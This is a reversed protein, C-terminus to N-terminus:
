VEFDARSAHSYVWSFSGMLYLYFIADANACGINRVDLMSCPNCILLM